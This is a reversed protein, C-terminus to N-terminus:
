NEEKFDFVQVAYCKNTPDDTDEIALMRNAIKRIKPKYKKPTVLCTLGYLLAIILDTLFGFINLLM